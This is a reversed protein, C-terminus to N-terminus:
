LKAAGGCKFCRRRGMASAFLLYKDMFQSWPIQAWARQQLLLEGKGNFIFVSFARHLWGQEHAVLKEMEAIANDSEDVLVVNNREM